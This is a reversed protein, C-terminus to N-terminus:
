ARYPCIGRGLRRQPFYSRASSACARPTTAGNSGSWARPLDFAGDSRCIPLAPSAVTVPPSSLDAAVPAGSRPMEPRDEDNALLYAM